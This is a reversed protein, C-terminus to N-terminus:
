GGRKKKSKANLDDVVKALRWIESKIAKKSEYPVKPDELVAFMYPLLSCWTPTVDIYDTM